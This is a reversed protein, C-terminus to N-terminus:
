HMTRSFDNIVMFYKWLRETILEADKRISFSNNDYEIIIMDIIKGPDLIRIIQASHRMDKLYILKFYEKFFWMTVHFHFLGLDVKDYLYKQYFIFTLNDGMPHRVNM